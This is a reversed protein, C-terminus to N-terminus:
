CTLPLMLFFCSFKHLFFFQHFLFASDNFTALLVVLKGGIVSLSQDSLILEGSCCRFAYSLFQPQFIVIIATLHDLVESMEVLSFYSVVMIDFCVFFAFLYFSLIFNELLLDKLYMSKWFFDVLMFIFTLLNCIDM